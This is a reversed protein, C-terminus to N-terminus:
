VHTRIKMKENIIQDKKKKMNEFSANTKFGNYLIDPDQSM